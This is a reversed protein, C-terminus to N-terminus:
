KLEFIARLEGKKKDEEIEKYRYEMKFGNSIKYGVRAAYANWGDGHAEDALDYEGELYLRGFKAHAGIICVNQEDANDGYHLILNINDNLAASLNLVYADGYEDNGGSKAVGDVFYLSADFIGKKYLLGVSYAGSDNGEKADYTGPDNHDAYYNVAINLGEALEPSIFGIGFAPKIKGVVADGNDILKTNYFKNEWMGLKLSIGNDFKDLLYSQNLWFNQRDGEITGTVRSGDSNDGRDYSYKELDDAKAEVFVKMTDTLQSELKLVAEIEDRADEDAETDYTATIEGSVKVEALAAAGLSFVLIVSLALMLFKKM